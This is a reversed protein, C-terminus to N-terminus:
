FRFADMEKAEKVLPHESGDLWPHVAAHCPDCLGVMNREDNNGGHQVQIIHHRCTVRAGRCLWCSADFHKWNKSAKRRKEYKRKNLATVVSWRLLFDFRDKRSIVAKRERWLQNIAQAYDM